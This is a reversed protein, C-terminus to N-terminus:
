KVVVFSKTAIQGNSAIVRLLYNGAPYDLVSIELRLASAHGEFPATEVHAGNLAVISVSYNSESNFKASVHIIDSSPNPALALQMELSESLLNNNRLVEIGQLAQQKYKATMSNLESQVFEEQTTALIKERYEDTLWAYNGNEAANHLMVFRKELYLRQADLDEQSPGNVAAVILDNQWENAHTLLANELVPDGCDNMLYNELTGEQGFASISLTASLVLTGLTHYISKM